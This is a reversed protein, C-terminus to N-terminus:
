SLDRECSLTLWRWLAAAMSREVHMRWGEGRRSLALRIGAFMMTSSEMPRSQTDAFDYGGGDALLETCAPGTVDIVIMGDSFDTIAFGDESWGFITREDTHSVHLLRDPALRLRYRSDECADRPGLIRGQGHARLFAPLDGSVLWVTRATTVARISLNATELSANPWDPVPSWFTSRDFM